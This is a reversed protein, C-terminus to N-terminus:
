VNPESLQKIKNTFNWHHYVRIIYVLGQRSVFTKSKWGTTVKQWPVKLHVHPRTTDAIIHTAFTKIWCHSFDCLCWALDENFPKHIPHVPRKKATKIRKTTSSKLHLSQIIEYNKKIIVKWIRKQISTKLDGGFFILFHDFRVIDNQKQNFDGVLHRQKFNIFSVLFVSLIVLFNWHLSNGGLIHGGRVHQQFRWVGISVNGKGNGDMCPMNVWM